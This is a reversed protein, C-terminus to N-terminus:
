KQQTGTWTSISPLSRASLTALDEKESKGSSSAEEGISVLKRVNPRKNLSHPLSSPLSQHTAGLHPLDCGTNYAGSRMIMYLPAAILGCQGTKSRAMCMEGMAVEHGPSNARVTIVAQDGQSHLVQQDFTGTQPVQALPVEGTTPSFVSTETM